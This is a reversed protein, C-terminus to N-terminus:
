TIRKWVYATIIPQLSSAAETGEFRGNDYLSDTRLVRFRNAPVVKTNEPVAGSGQVRAYLSDADAGVTQWHWHTKSGVLKEPTDFDDDTEDVSVIGRGNGFREWTGFGFLDGPNTDDTANFYLSGVPWFLAMFSAITARKTIDSASVDSHPVEDLPSPTVNVPLASIKTM